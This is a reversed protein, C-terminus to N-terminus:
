LNAAALAACEDVYDVIDDVGEPDHIWHDGYEYSRWTVSAGFRALENRLKIGLEPEVINDRRGHAIFFGNIPINDPVAPDPRKYKIQFVDEYFKALDSAAIRGSDPSSLASIQTTFPLWGCIGIFGGIRQPYSLLVHIATACGQSLGALIVNDQGIIAVEQDVLKHIREISERLGEPQLEQRSEPDSLSYIDFWQRQLEHFSSSMSEKATPFIWKTNPLSNRLTPHTSSRYSGLLSFIASGFNAGADGRGHLFIITQQHEATPVVVHPEPIGDSM